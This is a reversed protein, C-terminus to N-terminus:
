EDWYMVFRAETLSALAAALMSKSSAAVSRSWSNSSLTAAFHAPLIQKRREGGFSPQRQRLPFQRLPSRWETPLDIRWEKNGEVAVQARALCREGTRDAGTIANTVLDRARGEREHVDVVCWFRWDIVDIEKPEVARSVQLIDAPIVDDLGVGQNQQLPRVPRAIQEIHDERSNSTDSRMCPSFPAIRTNM